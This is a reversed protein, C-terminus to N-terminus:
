RSLRIEYGFSKLREPIANLAVTVRQDGENPPVGHLLHSPYLVMDGARADPLVWTEASFPSAMENVGDHRFVFEEGGRSRRFVTRASAHPTTVYVIASVFSNAHTHMFQSGGRELRNLWMEKVVWSLQDSFMLRGMEAVHPVAADAIRRFLADGQPDVMDTHSLQTTRANADMASEEARERVEDLMSSSLFGEVKILPTPFLGIVRSAPNDQNTSM